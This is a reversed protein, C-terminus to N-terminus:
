SWRLVAALLMLGAVSQVSRAAVLCSAVAACQVTMVAANLLNPIRHQKRM